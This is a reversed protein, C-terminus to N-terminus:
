YDRNKFGECEADHKQLCEDCLMKCGCDHRANTGIGNECGECEDYIIRSLQLMYRNSNGTNSVGFEWEKNTSNNVDCFSDIMNYIEESDGDLNISQIISSSNSKVLKNMM